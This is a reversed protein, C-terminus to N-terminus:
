SDAEGVAKRDLAGVIEGVAKQLDRGPPRVARWVTWQGMNGQRQDVWTGGLFLVGDKVVPRLGKRRGEVEERGLLIGAGLNRGGTTTYQELSHALYAAICRSLLRELDAYMADSKYAPYITTPNQGHRPALPSDRRAVQIHLTHRTGFCPGDLATALSVELTGLDPFTLRYSSEWPSLTTTTILAESPDESAALISTFPSEPGSAITSIQLSFATRIARATSDLFVELTKTAHAHRLYEAVPQLIHDSTDSEPSSSIPAPPQIRRLYRRKHVKTLLLRLALLISHAESDPSDSIQHTSPTILTIIVRQIQDDLEANSKTPAANLPIVIEHNELLIQCDLLGHSENLMFYYLEEDFLSDRAQRLQKKIPAYEVNTTIHATTSAITQDGQKIQIQLCKPNRIVAHDLIISGDSGPRLM